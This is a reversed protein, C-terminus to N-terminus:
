SNRSNKKKRSDLHVVELIRRNGEQRTLKWHISRHGSGQRFALPPKLYQLVWLLLQSPSFYFSFRGISRSREHIRRIKQEPSIHTNQNGKKTPDRLLFGKEVSSRLPRIARRSAPPWEPASVLWRRVFCRRRPFKESEFFLAPVSFLESGLVLLKGQVNITTLYNLEKQSPGNEPAPQPLTSSPLTTSSTSPEELHQHLSPNKRAANNTGWFM